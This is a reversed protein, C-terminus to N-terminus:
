GVNAKEQFTGEDLCIRRWGPGRWVERDARRQAKLMRSFAGDGDAVLKEPTDDQVIRGMDLVVVRDFELSETIDHTVFILTAEAWRKRAEALLRQRESRHLGRFAEDLIVMRVDERLMARALRIRQGEGGSVLMGGEGLPTQLGLTREELVPFLGCRKIVDVVGRPERVGYCLNGLLDRNWLRVEPDIWAIRQRIRALSGSDVERGDIQFRGRSPTYWGLLLGVLTSKGVGSRGVVAIHSGPEVSFDVDELLTRGGACVEVGSMEIEFGSAVGVLHEDGPDIRAEAEDPAELVEHLRMFINRRAPWQRLLAALRIGLAPIRLGWYVLLLVTGPRGGNLLRGWVLWVMLGYGVLSLLTEALVGAVLLSRRAVSWDVVLAEHNRAVARQAGHCRVPFLGLLADLSFRTLGGAHTRVSLDRETLFGQVMAPAMVSIAAMAIIKLFSEPDLWIMGTTLAVLLFVVEAIQTWLIPIGHLAHIMHAREAMDSRLRSRFYRDPLRPVKEFFAVRLRIELRRGLRLAMAVVPAKLGVRVALLVVLAFIAGARQGELGLLRGGDIFGRFLLGEFVMSVAAFALAAVIAVSPFGGGRFVLRALERVPRSPQEKLAAKVEQPVHDLDVEGGAENWGLIRVLVSGRMLVEDDKGPSPFVSWFSEPVTRKATGPAELETRLTEKLLGVSERGRRLARSGVLAAVFRTVADLVAVSRWDGGQFANELIRHIEQKSGGLATIRRRLPARFDESRAWEMWDAEPVPQTHVFLDRVFDKRRVWRRGVAPDMVQILSGFRRWVVSFHAAGSPRRVLVVAPLAHAEELFLHDPPLMVQEAEFGLDLLLDEITDISTGDVSTQCAERLRGYSVRVGFGELVAKLSAPGCDMASTQVVEPVLWRIRQGPM